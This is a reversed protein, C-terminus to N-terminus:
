VHRYLRYRYVDQIGKAYGRVGGQGGEEETGAPPQHMLIVVSKYMMHIFVLQTYICGTYTYLEYILFFDRKQQASPAKSSVM